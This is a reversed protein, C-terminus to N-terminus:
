RARACCWGHTVDLQPNVGPRGLRPFRHAVDPVSLVSRTRDVHIFRWEDSGRSDVLLWNRSPSWAIGGVVGATAFLRSRAGTVTDLRTVTSWYLGRGVRSRVSVAAINGSQPNAAVQVIDDRFGAYSRRLKGDAGIVAISRSDAVLISAGDGTWELGRPDGRLRPLEARWMERGRNIDLLRVAAGYYVALKSDDRPSWAIPGLAGDAVLRAARGDIDVIHVGAGNVYALHEGNRSFALETVEGTSRRWLEHGSPTTLVVHSNSVVAIASGTPSPRALWGQGIRAIEGTRGVRWIGGNEASGVVLFSGVPLSFPRSTSAAARTAVQGSAPSAPLSALVTLSGVLGAVILRVGTFIPKAALFTARAERPTV